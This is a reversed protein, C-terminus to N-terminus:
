LRRTIEVHHSESVRRTSFRSRARWRRAARTAEVRGGIAAIPGTFVRVHQELTLLPLASLEDDREWYRAHLRAFAELLRRAGAESFSGRPAIGHSVDDMLM